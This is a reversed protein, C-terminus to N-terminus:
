PTVGSRAENLAALLAEGGDEGPLRMIANALLGLEQAKGLKDSLKHLSKAKGGFPRSKTSSHLPVSLHGLVDFQMRLRRVKRRWDHLGEPDRWRRAKKQAKSARGESKELACALEAPNLM